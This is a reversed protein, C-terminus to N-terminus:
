VRIGIVLVDDVQELNGKWQELVTELEQKQKEMPQHSVALLKEQLQKYKFKKGKPGGFQDAYGDTFLYLTDGKKLKLLHTSFPKQGEHKGIPQKDPAVEKLEGGQAYWLPNYAGSWQIEKTQTNICCLSIDMGDQVNSESKEFTELVLERVRDLIKGPETIKFEKVTRNLANSCVVSVMAGPVGHGTCDAAAILINDGAREMWYFDGAVIDKPKYLVFSEPLYQKIISLPPLIADQLRKAYTISDLIEKNKEEVIEKQQEVMNKQEEIVEKQKRTIKLSRFIGIAVVAIILAICLVFALIIKHRKNDAKGIADSKEKEANLLAAKKDFDAQQQAEKQENKLQYIEKDNHIKNMSDKYSYFKDQYYYALKYDGTKAYANTLVEFYDNDYDHFNHDISLKIAKNAYDIAQFYQRKALYIQAISGYCYMIGETVQFKIRLALSKQQIALASDLYGFGRYANGMNGMILPENRFNGAKDNYIIALRFSNLCGMTDKKSEYYSALHQYGSAINQNTKVPNLSTNRILIGIAKTCMKKASDPPIDFDSSTLNIMLGAINISDRCLLDSELAKKYEMYAKSSYESYRLLLGIFQFDTGRLKSDLLAVVSDVQPLIEPLKERQQDKYYFFFLGVYARALDEKNTNGIEKIAKKFTAVIRAHATDTETHNNILYYGVSCDYKGSFSPNNKLKTRIEELEAKCEKYNNLNFNHYYRKFLFEIKKASDTINAGEAIAKRFYSNSSGTDSGKLEEALLIYDTARDFAVKDTKVKATLSDIYYQNQSFAKAGILLLLLQLYIKRM